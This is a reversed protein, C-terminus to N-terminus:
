GEPMEEAQFAPHAEPHDEWWRSYIESARVLELHARSLADRMRLAAASAEQRWLLMIRQGFPDDKLRRFEVGDRAVATPQYLGIARGSRILSSSIQWDSSWFDVRPRFGAAACVERFYAPWPGDDAADDIWEYEALDGLALVDHSALPSNAAVGVLMPEDDVLVFSEVGAPTAPIHGRPVQVLGIDLAGSAILSVIRGSGRDVRLHLRASPFLTDFRDSLKVLAPCIQAGVRLPLVPSGALPKRALAMNLDDICSMVVRARAAVEAGIPTPTVGEPSRVFLQAGLHSEVRRLTTSVAPQTLDLRAAAKSISGTTAIAEIMRLHHPGLDM